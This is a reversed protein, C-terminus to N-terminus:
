KHGFALQPDGCAWPAAPPGTPAWRFGRRLAAQFRLQGLLAQHDHGGLAKLPPKRGVSSRALMQVLVRAGLRRTLPRLDALSRPPTGPCHPSSLLPPQHRGGANQLCFQRRNERGASTVDSVTLRESVGPYTFCYHYWHSREGPM